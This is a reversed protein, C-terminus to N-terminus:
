RSLIPSWAVPIGVARVELFGLVSEVEVFFRYLM